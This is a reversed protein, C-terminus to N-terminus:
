ITFYMFDVTLTDSCGSETKSAPARRRDDRIEHEAPNHCVIATPQEVADNSQGISFNCYKDFDKGFKTVFIMYKFLESFETPPTDHLSFFVPGMNAVRQWEGTGSKKFFKHADSDTFAWSDQSGVKRFQETAVNAFGQQHGCRRQGILGGMLAYRGHGDVYYRRLPLESTHNQDQSRIMLLHRHGATASSFVEHTGASDVKLVRLPIDYAKCISILESGGNKGDQNPPADFDDGIRHQRWLIERIREAKSPNHFAELACEAIEHAGAKRFRESVFLRIDANAFLVWCVSAFWCNGSDKYFQPIGIASRLAPPVCRSVAAGGCQRATPPGYALQLHKEHKCGQADQFAYRLLMDHLGEAGSYIRIFRDPIKPAVIGYWADSPVGTATDAGDDEVHSVAIVLQADRCTRFRMHLLVLGPSPVHPMTGGSTATYFLHRTAM